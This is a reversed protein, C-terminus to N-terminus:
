AEATRGADQARRVLGFLFPGLEASTAIEAARVARPRSAVGM